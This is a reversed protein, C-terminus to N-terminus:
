DIKAGSDKIVKAWKVTEKVMYSALQEPTGPLPELGVALFRERVEPLRLVATIEANLRALVAPPTGAPALIGFWGGSEFGPVGSENLTPLDPALTSREKSMVGIVKVRGSKLQPQVSTIDAIALQTDGAMAALVAPGSGRYPIHLIFSGTMSKLLEGSLHMATGNGGSAYSLKGPQQKALAILDKVNNAPLNANAILVFPSTGFLTVPALDKEPNYPLNKYLSPNATLGGASALVLTYGDAPSKAVVDIGLGGGAGPRNEIVVSQGLREALKPAVIRASTDSSGGPPFPVILRIPKNPYPAPTTQAHASIVAGVGCYLWFAVTCLLHRVTRASSPRGQAQRLKSASSGLGKVFEPYVPCHSATQMM